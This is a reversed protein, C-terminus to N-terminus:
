SRRSEPAPCRPSRSSVCAFAMSRRWRRSCRTASVARPGTIRSPSSRATDRPRRASPRGRRDAQGLLPRDGAGRHGRAALTEAAKLAEHLTVGAGVITVQDDDSLAAVEHRRDPVARGPRLDVPTAGRSTRMYVVGAPRGDRRRARGDPQRGRTSSRAATSRACSALDELAMQSPGDEGIAVGAHSGGPPHRARSIAAMRIFDYARSLFAAFTSAFPVFGRVQMGVAAAVMQQEAIFIEFFREPHAKAFLESFTSNQGRRRARRRRRPRRRAGQARRRLGPPDRGQRRGRLAAPQLADTSGSRNGPAGAADAAAVEVTLRAVGGLEAIAERGTRPCRRATGARRTRSWPRRGHGEEDQRRHADPQGATRSPRPSRRTSRRRRRSRRDRHRALRLRPRAGRLLRHGLRLM